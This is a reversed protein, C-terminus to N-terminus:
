DWDKMEQKELQKKLFEWEKEMLVLMEEWQEKTANKNEEMQKAMESLIEFAMNLAAGKISHALKFVAEKNASTVAKKLKEFYIPFTELATQAMQSFLNSNDNILQRFIGYNFHKKGSM